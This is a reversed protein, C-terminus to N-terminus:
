ENYGLSVLINKAVKKVEEHAVNTLMQSVEPSSTVVQAVDDILDEKQEASARPTFDRTRIAHVADPAEPDKIVGGLFYENYIATGEGGGFRPYNGHSISSHLQEEREVKKKPYGLRLTCIDFPINEAHLSDTISRIGTGSLIFDTVLLVRKPALERKIKQIYERDNEGKREQAEPTNNITKRERGSPRGAIFRTEFHNKNQRYIEGMIEGVILTPIRGSADEGILLDYEGAQIKGLVPALMEKIPEEIRGILETGREVLEQNEKELATQKPSKNSVSEISMGRLYWM